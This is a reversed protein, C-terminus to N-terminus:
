SVSCSFLFSPFFFIAETREYCAYIDNICDVFALPIGKDCYDIDVVTEEAVDQREVEADMQDIEDLLAETHQVSM